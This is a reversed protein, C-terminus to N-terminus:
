IGNVSFANNEIRPFLLQLPVNLKYIKQEYNKVYHFFIIHSYKNQNLNIKSKLFYKENPQFSPSLKRELLGLSQWVHM